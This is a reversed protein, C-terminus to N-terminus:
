RRSKKDGHQKKNCCTKAKEIQCGCLPEVQEIGNCFIPETVVCCKKNINRNCFRPVVRKSQCCFLPLVEVGNCYVPEVKNCCKRNINRNCTMPQNQPRMNGFLHM